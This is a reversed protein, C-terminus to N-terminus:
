SPLTVPICSLPLSIVQYAILKVSSAWIHFRDFIYFFIGKIYIPKYIFLSSCLNRVSQGLIWINKDIDLLAALTLKM